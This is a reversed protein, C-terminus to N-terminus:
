ALTLTVSRVTGDSGKAKIRLSTNSTLEFVVEGNNAPTKSAGPTIVLSGTPSVEFGQSKFASGSFTIGTFNVGHICSRSDATNYSGILTGDVPWKYGTKGFAIGYDYKVLASSDAAFVAMADITSGKVADSNVSALQLIMKEDVSAGAEVAVDFEAGIVGHAYTVGSTLTVIGGFAYFDGKTNGPTGGAGSTIYSTAFMSTFFGNGAAPNTPTSYSLVSHIANRNGSGAGAVVGLNFYGGNITAGPVLGTTAMRDVTNVTMANTVFGTALGSMSGSQLYPTSSPTFGDGNITLNPKITIFGNGLSLRKDSLNVVTPLTAYIM